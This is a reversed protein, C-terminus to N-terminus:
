ANDAGGSEEACLYKDPIDVSICIGIGYYGNDGGEFKTELIRKDLSYVVLTFSGSGETDNGGYYSNYDCKVEIKTIVNGTEGLVIVDDYRFWGEDCGGCGENSKAILEVGNSLVLILKEGSKDKKIDVISQNYCLKQIKESVEHNGDFSYFSDFIQENM